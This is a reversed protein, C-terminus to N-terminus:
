VILAGVPIEVCLALDSAGTDSTLNVIHHQLLFHMSTQKIGSKTRSGASMTRCVSWNYNDTIM